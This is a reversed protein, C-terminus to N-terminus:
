VDAEGPIRLIITTGEGPISQIDFAGKGQFAINLRRKVNSIGIGTSKDSFIRDNDSLIEEITDEPIGPGTDSIELCVMNEKRKIILTIVGGKENPEIGYKIANEVLPQLTFIPISVSSLDVGCIMKFALRDGYRIKQIHMYENLIDIEDALAVIRNQRNLTYRLINSLSEILKVTNPAKEFMSTRSITNLTNFLFHPSIQSQLSLFQAEKLSMDMEVLKVEDERLKKEIKVKDELSKVMGRINRSMKNFSNTLIGIEDKYPVKFGESKLNGDAMKMSIDALQRIPRTVSESFFTGFILFLIGIFIIGIFSITRVLSVKEVHFSHLRSGESLRIRLLEELYGELYGNIRRAKLLYNIFEDGETDKYTFTNDASELYAILAYRIASIQFYADKSTNSIEWVLNWNSWIDAIGNNFKDFYSSDSSIIYDEFAKNNEKILTKLNHVASNRKLDLEYIQM